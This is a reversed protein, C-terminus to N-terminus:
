QILNLNKGLFSKKRTNRVHGLMGQVKVAARVTGWKSKKTEFETDRIEYPNAQALYGFCNTYCAAYLLGQLPMILAVLYSAIFNRTNSAQFGRNLLSFFRFCYKIM